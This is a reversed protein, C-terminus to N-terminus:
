ANTEPHRSRRRAIISVLGGFLVMALGLLLGSAVDSGTEPIIPPNTPPPPLVIPPEPIATARSTNNTLDPDFVSGTVEAVNVITTEVPTTLPLLVTIRITGSAGVALSARTCSVGYGVRICEFDSSAVGTVVVSAPVLDSIAVNVKDGGVGITDTSSDCADMDRYMYYSGTSPLGGPTLGPGYTGGTWSSAPTGVRTGWDGAISVNPVGGNGNVPLNGDIEFATQPVLTITASVSTVGAVTAVVPIALVLAAVLRLARGIASSTRSIVRTQFSDSGAVQFM